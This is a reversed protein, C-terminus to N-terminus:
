HKELGRRQRIIAMYSQLQTKKDRRGFNNAHYRRRLTVFDISKKRVGLDDASLMWAATESSKLSEDYMGVRDFVEKKILTCGSLMRDYPVPNIHLTKAEEETLDPSLFDVCKSYVLDTSEDDCFAKMLADLAGDTLIDDADLFFIYRGKALRIAENRSAAQGMHPRKILVAPMVGNLESIVKEAHLASDDPSGDDIIILELDDRNQAAVSKVAEEIYVGAQYMPILVSILPSVATELPRKHISEAAKRSM